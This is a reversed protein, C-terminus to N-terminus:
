GPISGVHSLLAHVKNIQFRLLLLNRGCEGLVDLPDQGMALVDHPGLDLFQLGPQRRIHADLM